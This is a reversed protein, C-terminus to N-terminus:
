AAAESVAGVEEGEGALALHGREVLWQRQLPEATGIVVVVRQAGGGLAPRGARGALLVQVRATAAVATGRRKRERGGGGGAGQRQPLSTM